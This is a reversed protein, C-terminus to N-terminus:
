SQRRRKAAAHVRKRCKEAQERARKKASRTAKSPTTFGTESYLANAEFPDFDHYSPPLLPWEIPEREPVQATGKEVERKFTVIRECEADLAKCFVAM